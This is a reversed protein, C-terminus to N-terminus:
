SHLETPLADTELVSPRPNSDRWEQWGQVSVARVARPLKKWKRRTSMGIAGLGLIMLAWSGPEPVAPANIDGIFSIAVHTPRTRADALGAGEFTGSAGAFRGTGALITFLWATDSIGPTDSFTSGGDFSGSFSDAGFDITFTGFSPANPGAPALCTSTSYTFDGLTSHGVTSSPSVASRFPLPACTPDLGILTSLGTVSGTFPLVAAEAATATGALALAVAIRTKHGIM